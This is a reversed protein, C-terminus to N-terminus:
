STKIKQRIENADYSMIKIYIVSLFACPVSFLVESTCRSHVKLSHSHLSLLSVSSHWHTRNHQDQHHDDASDTAVSCFFDGDLCTM